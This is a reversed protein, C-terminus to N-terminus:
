SSEVCGNRSWINHLYIGGWSWERGISCRPLICIHVLHFLWVFLYNMERHFLVNQSQPAKSLPIFYYMTPNLPKISLSANNNWKNNSVNVVHHCRSLPLKYHNTQVLHCLLCKILLTLWKLLSLWILVFPSGGLNSRVNYTNRISAPM